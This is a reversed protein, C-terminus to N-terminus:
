TIFVDKSHVFGLFLTNHFSDVGVRKRRKARSYKPIMDQVEFDLKVYINPAARGM